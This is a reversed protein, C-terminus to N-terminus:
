SSQARDRPELWRHLWRFVRYGFLSGFVDACLDMADNGSRHPNWTQHWEDIAGVATMVVLTIWLLQGWDPQGSQLRYLFACFLGSGGFFYGFHYVKDMHPIDNGSPM